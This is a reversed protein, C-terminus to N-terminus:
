VIEQVVLLAIGIEEALMRCEELLEKQQIIRDIDIRAVLVEHRCFAM